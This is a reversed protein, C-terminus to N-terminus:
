PVIRISDTGRIPFEDITRGKLIGVTDGSKFGASQNDFHGILDLRGDGNVDEVQAPRLLSKEDGTRGFTLSTRDVRTADFDATSLIAVPINGGLNIPNDSEEPKIDIAVLILTCANGVGDGDSDKQSPNPVFPCNDILNPIGDGDTDPSIALAQDITVEPTQITTLHVGDAFDVTTRFNYQLNAWDNYGQLVTIGTGTGSGEPSGGCGKGAGFNNIDAVVGIDTAPLGSRNWDIAGNGAVVQV